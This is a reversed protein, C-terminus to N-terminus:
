MQLWLDLAYRLIERVAGSSAGQVIWGALSRAARSVWGSGRGKRQQVQTRKAKIM